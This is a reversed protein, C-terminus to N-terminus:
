TSPHCVAVNYMFVLCLSALALLAGINNVDIHPDGDYHICDVMLYKM